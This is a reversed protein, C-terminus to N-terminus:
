EGETLGDSLFEDAPDGSVFFEFFRFLDDGVASLCGQGKDIEEREKRIVGDTEDGAACVHGEEIVKDIDNEESADADKHSAEESGVEEVVLVEVPPLPEDKKKSDQKSEDEDEEDGFGVISVQAFFFFSIDIKQCM